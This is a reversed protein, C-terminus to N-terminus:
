KLNGSGSSSRIKDPLLAKIISVINTHPRKSKKENRQKFGFGRVPTLLSESYKMEVASREGPGGNSSIGKLSSTYSLGDSQKMTGTESSGSM